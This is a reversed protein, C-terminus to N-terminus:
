IIKKTPKSLRNRLRSLHQQTMGLFSAVHKLKVRNGLRPHIELFRNYRTENNHCRFFRLEKEYRILYEQYICFLCTNLEPFLLSLKQFDGFQVTSIQCYELTEIYDNSPSRLFLTMAIAAFEGECIFRATVTTDTDTHYYVRAIGSNLFYVTDSTNCPETLITNADFYELKIIGNLANKCSQTLPTIKELITVLDM